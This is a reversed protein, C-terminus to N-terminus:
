AIRRPFHPNASKAPRREVIRTLDYLAHQADLLAISERGDGDDHQLEALRGEIAALAQRIRILLREEDLEFLAAEYLNWWASEHGGGFRRTSHQAM